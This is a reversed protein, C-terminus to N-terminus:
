RKFVTMAQGHKVFGLKKLLDEMAPDEVAVEPLLGDERIYKCLNTILLMAFGRRRYPETVHLHAPRGSPYQMCWAIPAEPSDQMFVGVSHYHKILMEFLSQKAQVDDVIPWYPAVVKAHKESM